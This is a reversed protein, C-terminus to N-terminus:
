APFEQAPSTRPVTGRASAATALAASIDIRMMAAIQTFMTADTFFLVQNAPDVWGGVQDASDMGRLSEVLQPEHDTEYSGSALERIRQSIAEKADGHCLVYVVGAGNPLPVSSTGVEQESLVLAFAQHDGALAVDYFARAVRPGEYQASGMYDFSFMRVLYPRMDEQFLWMLHSVDPDYLPAGSGDLCPKLLRQIYYSRELDAM